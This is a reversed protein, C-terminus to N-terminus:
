IQNFSRSFCFRVVFSLCFKSLKSHYGIEVNISKDHFSVVVFVVITM